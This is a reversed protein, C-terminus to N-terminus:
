RWFHRGLLTIKSFSGLWEQFPSKYPTLKINSMLKFTFPWCTEGQHSGIVVTWQHYTNQYTACPEM